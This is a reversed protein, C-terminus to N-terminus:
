LIPRSGLLAGLIKTKKILFSYHPILQISQTALHPPVRHLSTFTSVSLIGPQTHSTNTTIDVISWGMLSLLESGLGVLPDKCGSVDVVDGNGVPGDTKSSLTLTGSSHTYSFEM